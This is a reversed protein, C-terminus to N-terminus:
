QNTRKTTVPNTRKKRRKKAREAKEEPTRYTPHLVDQQSQMYSQANSLINSLQQETIKNRKINNEIAGLYTNCFRHLASRVYGTKHNHDLVADSAQLEQKCLACTNGQKTVLQERYAKVDKTRLRNM